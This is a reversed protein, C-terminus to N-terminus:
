SGIEQVVFCWAGFSGTPLHCLALLELPGSTRVNASEHIQPLRHSRAPRNSGTAGSSMGVSLRAAGCVM